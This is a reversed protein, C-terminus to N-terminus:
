TVSITSGGRRVSVNLSSDLWTKLSHALTMGSSSPVEWLTNDMYDGYYGQTHAICADNWIGYGHRAEYLGAAKLAAMGDLRYQQFSALQSANCDGKPPDCGLRLINPLQWADYQSQTVHMRTEIYRAFNQPFICDSPRSSHAAVCQASWSHSANALGWTLRMGDGFHFDSSSGYVAHDLFFGADPVAAYFALSSPLQARVYDAHLYTALGGASHGSLVVHTAARLGKTQMLSALNADLLRKGRFFIPSVKGGPVEVPESNDGSFSVGDCYYMYAVSWRCFAPNVTCNSNTMGHVDERLHSSWSKSSGLKGTAREACDKKGEEPTSGVCWGGGNFVLLFRSADTGQGQRFYYGGPSGDLCVAGSGAAAETLLTLRLDSPEPPSPPAPSPSPPLIDHCADGILQPSCHVYSPPEKPLAATACAVCKQFATTTSGKRGDCRPGQPDRNVYYYCSHGLTPQLLAGLLLMIVLM